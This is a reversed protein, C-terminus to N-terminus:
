LGKTTSEESKESMKHGLTQHTRETEARLGAAHASQGEGGAAGGGPRLMLLLLLMLLMLLLSAELAGARGVM